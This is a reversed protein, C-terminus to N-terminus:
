FSDQIMVVSQKRELAVVFPSLLEPHGRDFPHLFNLASHYIRYPIEQQYIYSIQLYWYGPTSVCLMISVRIASHEFSDPAGAFSM